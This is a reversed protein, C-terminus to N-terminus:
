INTKSQGDDTSPDHPNMLLKMLGYGAGAYALSPDLRVPVRNLTKLPRM